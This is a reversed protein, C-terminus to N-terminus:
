GNPTYKLAGKTTVESVATLARAFGGICLWVRDKGADLKAGPQHPDKGNPDQEPRFPTYQFTM